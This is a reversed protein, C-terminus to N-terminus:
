NIDIVAGKIKNPGTSRSLVYRGQILVKGAATLTISASGCSLVMEKQAVIEVREGDVRASVPTARAAHSRILGTVVASRDNSPDVAVLVEAGAGAALDVTTAAAVAADAFLGPLSVLAMGEADFGVLQGRVTALGPAPPLAPATVPREELARFLTSVAPAAESAEGLAPQLHPAPDLKM